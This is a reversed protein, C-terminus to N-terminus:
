GSWAGARARPAPGAAQDLLVEVQERHVLEGLPYPEAPGDYAVATALEVIGSVAASGPVTGLARVVIAKIAERDVLDDIQHRGAASLLDDALRTM